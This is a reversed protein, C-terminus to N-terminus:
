GERKCSRPPQETVCAGNVLEREGLPEELTISLDYPVGVDSCGMARVGEYATIVVRDEDEEAEVRSSTQCESGIFHVVLDTGTGDVTSWPTPQARGRWLYQGGIVLGVVLGILAAGGLVLAGLVLLGKVPGVDDYRANM